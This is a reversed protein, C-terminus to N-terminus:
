LVKAGCSVCTGDRKLLDHPCKPVETAADLKANDETSNTLRILSRYLAIMRPNEKHAIADDHQSRLEANVDSVLKEMAM